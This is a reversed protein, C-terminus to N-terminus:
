GDSLKKRYENPTCSYKKKFATIFQSSFSFGVSKSIEAISISNSRLFYASTILRYDNLYKHPTCGFQKKFVRILHAESLFQADAMDKVSIKEGYHKKIYEVANEAFSPAKKKESLEEAVIHFIESLKASIRIDQNASENLSLSLLEEMPETIDRVNKAFIEGNQLVRDLFTNAMDGVPHIWYFEWEGGVPTRYVYPINRPILVISGRSLNYEEGLMHLEGCGNVTYMILYRFNGDPRSIGYMENVRHWGVSNLAFYYKSNESIARNALRVEGFSGNVSYM